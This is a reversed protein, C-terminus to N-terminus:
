SKAKRQLRESLSVKLQVGYTPFNRGYITTVPLRWGIADFQKPDNNWVTPCQSFHQRDARRSGVIAVLVVLEITSGCWNRAM